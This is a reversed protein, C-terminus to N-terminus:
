LGSLYVIFPFQNGDGGSRPSAARPSKPVEPAPQRAEEEGERLSDIRQLAPRVGNGEQSSTLGTRSSTRMLLPQKVEVKSPRTRAWSGGSTTATMDTKGSDFKSQSTPSVPPPGSAIPSPNSPSTGGKSNNRERLKSNVTEMCDLCLYYIFLITDKVDIRYSGPCFKRGKMDHLTTEDFNNKCLACPAMM